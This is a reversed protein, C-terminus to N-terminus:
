VRLPVGIGLCPDLVEGGGGPSYAQWMFLKINSRACLHFVKSYSVRRRRRMETRLLLPLSYFDRGCSRGCCAM